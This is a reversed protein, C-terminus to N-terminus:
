ATIARFSDRVGEYDSVKLIPPGSATESVKMIPPSPGSAPLSTPRSPHADPLSPGSATQPATSFLQRTSVCPGSQVHLLWIHLLACPRRQMTMQTLSAPRCRRICLEFLKRTTSCLGSRGGHYSDPTCPARTYDPWETAILSTFLKVFSDPRYPEGADGPGGVKVETGRLRISIKSSYTPNPARLLTHWLSSALACALSLFVSVWLCLSLSLSLSLCVSLCIRALSLSEREQNRRYMTNCSM